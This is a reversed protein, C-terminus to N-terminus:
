LEPLCDDREVAKISVLYDFIEEETFIEQTEKKAEKKQQQPKGKGKKKAFGGASSQITDEEDEVKKTAELLKQPQKYIM